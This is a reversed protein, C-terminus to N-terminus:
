ILKAILDILQDENINYYKAFGKKGLGHVGKSGRHHYPCLPIVPAENRPQGYRRVHHIEAPTGENGLHYCLICGFSSLADYHARKAKNM